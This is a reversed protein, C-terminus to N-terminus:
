PAFESLKAIDWSANWLAVVEDSQTDMERNTLNQYAEAMAMNADCFDHSACINFARKERRCAAAEGRNRHIVSEMQAPKLWRRLVRSFEKALQQPTPENKLNVLHEALEAGTAYKQGCIAEGADGSPMVGFHTESVDDPPMGQEDCCFLQMGTGPLVLRWNEVGGGQEELKFGLRKLETELKM